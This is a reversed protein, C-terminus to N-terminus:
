EDAWDRGMETDRSLDVSSQPFSEAIDCQLDATTAATDLKAFIPQVAEDRDAQSTIGAIRAGSIWLETLLM